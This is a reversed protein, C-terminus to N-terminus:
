NTSQGYIPCGQIRLAGNCQASLYNNYTAGKMSPDKSAFKRPLQRYEPPNGEKSVIDKASDFGYFRAPDRRPFRGRLLHPEALSLDARRSTAQPPTLIVAPRPDSLLACKYSYM